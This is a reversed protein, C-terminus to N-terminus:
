EEGMRGSLRESVERPAVRGASVIMRLANEVSISTRIVEDERTIQLFGSMPNPATPIFISLQTQGKQDSSENTVFGVTWIEKRPFEILVVELFGGKQPVSFSELIQKIGTYIPRVVPVRALLFEGYHILRKGVVNSAIVGVLYILVIMIGFGVGPIPRGLIHEIYPQLIDDVTAFIWYLILVTAGLPVVILVGTLFQGRLKRGCWSLWHPYKM